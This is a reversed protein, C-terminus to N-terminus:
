VVSKRDKCLQTPGVVSIISTPRPNVTVLATGTMDIGLAACGTADTLATISYTRTSSPSVPFTYPSSNAIANFSGIGDTYTINWPGTGTLTVSLNIATGNCTTVGGGSLVSTPRANVSVVASGSIDGGIAGCSNNDSLATVTYTTTSGPNINFTFPSTNIGTVSTSTTGDFYTLAWPAAGTLAVSVTTTGGNCITTTGSVVATPRPNVVVNTQATNQCTNADTVLVNYIGAMSATVGPRTPNQVSSSYSNPGTWSYTTGGTATLNLTSGICVPSNSGITVVPLPHVIVSGAMINDCSNQTFNRAYVTYTGAQNVSFNIPGGTGNILFGVPTVGRYLQYQIGTESGDLTLNIPGTLCFESVPGLNFITPTKYVFTNDFNYATQFGLGNRQTYEFYIELGFYPAVVRNPYFRLKTDQGSGIVDAWGPHVEEFGLITVIRWHISATTPAWSDPVIDIYNEDSCYWNDLSAITGMNALSAIGNEVYKNKLSQEFEAPTVKTKGQGFLTNGSLVIFFVLIIRKLLYKFVM